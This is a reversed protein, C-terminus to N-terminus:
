PRRHAVVVQVTRLTTNGASDTAAVGVTYVRGGNKGLREARLTLTLPGTIEWDGETDIPENSTVGVIELRPTSDCLDLAEASLVVPVMRHSPPWLVAPSAVLSAIHPALRDVVAVHVTSTSALGGPDTVVLTLTHQGAPLAVNTIPNTSFSQGELSWEYALADGDPDSSNIGNLHILTSDGLCHRIQNPGARAIPRENVLEVSLQMIHAYPHVQLGNTRSPPGFVMGARVPGSGPWAYFDLFVSDPGGVTDLMFALNGKSPDYKFPTTFPIRVDFANPNQSVNTAVIPLPGNFVNSLDPGLNQQFILSIAEPARPTTSLFISVSPFVGEFSRSLGWSRGDQRFAVGHIWVSRGPPIGFQSALYIEILRHEFTVFGSNSAASAEVDHFGEPVVIQALQGHVTIIGIVVLIMSSVRSLSASTLPKMRDSSLTNSRRRPQLIKAAVSQILSASRGEHKDRVAKYFCRAPPM